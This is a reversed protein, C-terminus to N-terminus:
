RVRRQIEAANPTTTKAFSLNFIPTRNDRRHRVTVCNLPIRHAYVGDHKLTRELLALADDEDLAHSRPVLSPSFQYFWQPLPWACCESKGHEKCSATVSCRFVRADNPLAFLTGGLRGSHVPNNM